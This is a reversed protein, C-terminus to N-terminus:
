IKKDNLNDISKNILDNVVEKVIFNRYYKKAVIEGDDIYTQINEKDINFNLSERRTCNIEIYKYEIKYKKIQKIINLSLSDIAVSCLGSFYRTLSSLSNESNNAIVLGFSTEPEHYQLPFNNTLGGDVYFCNNYEVPTFFFPVSISMKIALIISAEPTELYNFVEGRSKTYNTVYINLEKGTLNYLEIFSIDERDYKEKLFTIVATIVKEGTNMGFMTLITNCNIDPIFKSFDFQLVFEILDDLTFGINLFFVLISGASTGSFIKLNSIKLFNNEELYKLAGLYSIGKIGGGALCLTNIM